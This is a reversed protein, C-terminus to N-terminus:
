KQSRLAKASGSYSRDDKLVAVSEMRGINRRGNKLSIALAVVSIILAILSTILTPEM